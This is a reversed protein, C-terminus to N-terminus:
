RQYRPPYYWAQSPVGASPPGGKRHGSHMERRDEDPSSALVFMYVCVTLSYPLSSLYVFGCFLYLPLLLPLRLKLVIRKCLFFPVMSSSFLVNWVSLLLCYSCPVVIFNTPLHVLFFGAQTHTPTHLYAHKSEISMFVCVYVCASM